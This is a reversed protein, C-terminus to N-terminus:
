VEEAGERRMVGALASSIEIGEIHLLCALSIGREDAVVGRRRFRPEKIKTETVEVGNGAWTLFLGREVGVSTVERGSLVLVEKGDVKVIGEVDNWVEKRSEKTDRGDKTIMVNIDRNVLIAGCVLCFSKQANEVRERAGDTKTHRDAGRLAGATCKIVTDLIECFDSISGKYGEM